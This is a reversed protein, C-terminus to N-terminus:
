SLSSIRQKHMITMSRKYSEGIFFNGKILIIKNVIQKKNIFNKNVIKLRYFLNINIYFLGM